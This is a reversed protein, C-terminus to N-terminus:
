SEEILEDVPTEEDFGAALKEMAFTGGLDEDFSWDRVAL